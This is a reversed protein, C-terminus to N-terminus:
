ETAAVWRDYGKALWPETDLDQLLQSGGLRREVSDAEGDELVM